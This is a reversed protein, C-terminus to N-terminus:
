RTAFASDPLAAFDEMTHRAHVDYARLAGKLDAALISEAIAFHDEVTHEDVNKALQAESLLRFMQLHLQNLFQPLVPNGSIEAILAHFRSNLDVWDRVSRPKKRLQERSILSRLRNRNDGEDIRQTARSVSLRGLNTLVDLVETAEQRSLARVIAGRHLRIELVNQAALRRLAERVPSRSVGLEKALEREVLQDGPLYRGRRIGSEIAATVLAVLTSTDAESKM